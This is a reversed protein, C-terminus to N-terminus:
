VTLVGPDHSPLDSDLNIDLYVASANMTIVKIDESLRCCSESGLSVFLRPKVRKILDSLEPLGTRVNLVPILDCWNMAPLYSFVLVERTDINSLLKLVKSICYHPDIGGIGVMRYGGLDLVQADLLRGLDRAVKTVYIDDYKGTVIYFSSRLIENIHRLPLRPGGLFIYAEVGESMLVSLERRTKVMRGNLVRLM